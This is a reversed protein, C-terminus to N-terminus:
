RAKRARNTKASPQRQSISRLKKASMEVVKGDSWVHLPLGIRAHEDIVNRVAEQLALLAREELPLELVSQPLANM